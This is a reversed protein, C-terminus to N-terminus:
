GNKIYRELEPISKFWPPLHLECTLRMDSSDTLEWTRGVVELSLELSSDRYVVVLDGVNPAIDLGSIHSMYRKCCDINTRFRCIMM